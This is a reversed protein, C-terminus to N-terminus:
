LQFLLAGDADECCCTAGDPSISERLQAVLQAADVRVTITQGAPGALIEAYVDTGELVAEVVDATTLCRAPRSM